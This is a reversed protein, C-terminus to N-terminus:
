HLVFLDILFSDYMKASSEPLKLRLLGVSSLAKAFKVKTGGGVKGVKERVGLRWADFQKQAASKLGYRLDCLADNGWQWKGPLGKM